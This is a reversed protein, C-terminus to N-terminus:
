KVVKRSRRSNGDVVVYMGRPLQRADSGVYRGDLTYYRPRADPADSPLSVTSTSDVEAQMVLVEDLLFRQEPAFTVRLPGNGILRVSYDNWAFADLTLVDPKVVGDGEVSLTLTTGDNGWGAARFTLQAEGTYTTFAPTTARGATSANGFRACQYGGYGKTVDWGKLDPQFISSAINTSWVDDNGGIGNCLDFTECLLTGEPVVVVEASNRFRFAITGDNNRTIDLIAKDLTRHGLRNEHYLTAAPESTNTLSDNDMYPYPDRSNGSSWPSLGGAHFITCRQHDNRPYGDAGSSYANVINYEWIERDYDVHLVLLGNAPLQADWGRLQRNELLYYEDEYADNRIIYVEPKDSLPQMASVTTSSNLAVPQVWGCTLRDFSSYGAPCFSGGNYSGQDMLSWVGMGFNSGSEGTDYMDPLGLCHSFEHCITGIGEIGSYSRENAVAYTNIYVDDLLLRSGYDSSELDWEHPWITNSSGGDAQGQGAYICMVQDVEGDGDWDYDHFDVLSDVAQCATAVMEGPNTDDGPRGTDHGYYAYNHPMQVPGVVDFTLEFEGYSQAKFYDYVSGRFRGQSFGEENCIRTYLLSDNEPQFQLDTFGVLIILGRKQGTYHKFDGVANRRVRQQRRAAAKARRSMAASRLVEIDAPQFNGDIESLKQGDATLWYHMHEDGMLQATVMTGNMPLTKWIGRKAPVALATLVVIVLSLTTFLRRMMQLTM